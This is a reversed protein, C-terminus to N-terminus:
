WAVLLLKEEKGFSKLPQSAAPSQLCCPKVEFAIGPQEPLISIQISNLTLCLRDQLTQDRRVSQLIQHCLLSKASTM